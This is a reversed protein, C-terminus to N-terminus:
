QAVALRPEQAHSRFMQADAVSLLYGVRCRLADTDHAEFPERDVHLSSCPVLGAVAQVSSHLLIFTAICLTWPLASCSVAYGVAYRRVLTLSTARFARAHCQPCLILTGNHWTHCTTSREHAYLELCEIASM